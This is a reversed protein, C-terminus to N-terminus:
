KRVPKLDMESIINEEADYTLTDDTISNLLAGIDTDDDLLEGEYVYQIRFTNKNQALRKQDLKYIFNHITKIQELQFSTIREPLWILSSVRSALQYLVNGMKCSQEQFSLVKQGASINEPFNFGNFSPYMVKYAKELVNGHDDVSYLSVTQNPTIIILGGDRDNVFFDELDFNKNEEIIEDLIENEDTLREIKKMFNDGKYNMNIYKEM